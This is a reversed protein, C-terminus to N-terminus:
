NQKLRDSLRGLLEAGLGVLVGVIGSKLIIGWSFPQSDFGSIILGVILGGTLGGWVPGRKWFVGLLVLSIVGLINWIDM